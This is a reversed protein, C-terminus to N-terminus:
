DVVSLMVRNTWHLENLCLRDARNYVILRIVVIDDFILGPSCSLYLIDGNFNENFIKKVVKGNM